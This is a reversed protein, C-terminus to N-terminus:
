NKQNEAVITPEYLIPRLMPVLINMSKYKKFAEKPDYTTGDGKIM